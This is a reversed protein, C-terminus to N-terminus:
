RPTGLEGDEKRREWNSFRFFKFSCSRWSGAAGPKEHPHYEEESCTPILSWGTSCLM